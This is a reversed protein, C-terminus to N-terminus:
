SLPVPCDVDNHDVKGCRSCYLAPKRQPCTSSFHQGVATCYFCTGMLTIPCASTQHTGACRACPIGMYDIHGFRDCQRCWEDISPLVIKVPIDTASSKDAFSVHSPPNSTDPTPPYYMETSDRSTATPSQIPEYFLDRLGKEPIPQEALMDMLSSTDKEIVSGAESVPEKVELVIVSGYFVMGWFRVSIHFFIPPHYRFACYFEPNNQRLVKFCGWYRGPCGPVVFEAIADITEGASVPDCVTESLYEYREEHAELDFKTRLLIEDGGM